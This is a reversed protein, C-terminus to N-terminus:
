SRESIKAYKSRKLLFFSNSFIWFSSIRIKSLIFEEKLKRGSYHQFLRQDQCKTKSPSRQVCKPINVITILTTISRLLITFSYYWWSILTQLLLKQHHGLFEAGLLCCGSSGTYRQLKPLLMRTLTSPKESSVRRGELTRTPFFSIAPFFLTSKQHPTMSKVELLVLITLLTFNTEALSCVQECRKTASWTGPSSQTRTVAMRTNPGASSQATFTGQCTLRM